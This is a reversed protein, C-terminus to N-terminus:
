FNPQVQNRQYFDYIYDVAEIPDDTIYFLDMDSESITGAPVMTDRMWSVLGEWYSTGFLVIPLPNIKRTQMLTLAEYFEDLTGLGGPFAVFGQSYKVFMVKRAFFYRFKIKFNQDVYVNADEEFPLDICLGVSKGDGDKAGQNGAEMIGPGGGTIIGFGIETLKQATEVAQQYYPHDSNIRASGIISVCPGIRHLKDYGDVFEGMIKFVSWIDQEVTQEYHDPIPHVRRQSNESFNKKM